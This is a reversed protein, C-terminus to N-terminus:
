SGSFLPLGGLNELMFFSFVTVEAFFIMSVVKKFVFTHNGYSKQRHFLCFTNHFRYTILCHLYLIIGSLLIIRKCLFICPCMATSFPHFCSMSVGSHFTNWVMRVTCIQCWGIEPQESFRFLCQFTVIKKYLGSTFTTHLQILFLSCVKKVLLIFLPKNM